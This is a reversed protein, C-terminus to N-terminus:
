IDALRAHVWTMIGGLYDAPTTPDTNTLGVRPTVVHLSCDPTGDNDVCVPFNKSRSGAGLAAIARRMPEHICDTLGLTVVSGDRMPCAIPPSGCTNSDGHNWIHLIPVVLRGSAVLKDPENAVNALDPQIRAAIAAVRAPDNNDTCFGAAKAAAFAETNVLSADAVVGAPAINQLQMAWAVGFTGASGASTGQLFTKTTPYHDHVYEIAAKTSYVGNTPRPKGDPTTNPNNPDPTDAGAYIDHSCYSVALTRFGAADARIRGVLGNNTLHTTLSVASEEVKQGNGPVPNGSTDFYGAGGGHMFVWLPQSSGASSGVKTGVVFTQYGSVSCPYANNRYYDYKWGDTTTTSVFTISSTNGPLMLSSCATLGGLAVVGAVCLATRRVWHM